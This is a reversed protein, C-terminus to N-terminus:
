KADEKHYMDLKILYLDGNIARAVIPYGLRKIAGHYSSQASRINAYEGADM